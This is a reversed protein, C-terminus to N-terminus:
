RYMEKNMKYFSVPLQGYVDRHENQLRKKEKEKKAISKDLSSFNLHFTM